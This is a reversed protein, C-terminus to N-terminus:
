LSLVLSVVKNIEVKYLQARILGRANIEVKYLILLKFKQWKLNFFVMLAFLSSQRVAHVVCPVNHM